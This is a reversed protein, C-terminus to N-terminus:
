SQQLLTSCVPHSLVIFIYQRMTRSALLGFDFQQCSWMGESRGYSFRGQRERADLPKGAIQRKNAQLHMVGIEAKTMM